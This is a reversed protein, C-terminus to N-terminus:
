QRKELSNQLYGFSSISAPLATTLWLARLPDAAAVRPDVPRLGFEAVLEEKSPELRGEVASAFLSEQICGEIQAGTMWESLDALIELDHLAPDRGFRKLFYDLMAIRDERNPVDLFFIADFRGSRILEAPMGEPSTMTAVLLVTHEREQLWALFTHLVRQSVESFQSGAISKDLDDIWLVVPSLSEVQSLAERMNREAGGLASTFIRGLDLRLLPLGLEGALAQACHSKGTGPAGGLIVGRPPKIVSSLLPDIIHRKRADVWLRLGELGIVDHQFTRTPSYWELLGRRRVEQRKMRELDNLAHERLEGHRAKSLALTRRINTLTLGAAHWAFKASWDQQGVGEQLLVEEVDSRTASLARFCQVYKSFDDPIVFLSSVLVIKKGRKRTRRSVNVLDELLRRLDVKAFAPSASPRDAADDYGRVWSNPDWPDSPRVARYVERFPVDSVSSDTGRAGGSLQWDDLFADYDRLVLFTPEDSQSIWDAVGRPDMLYAGPVDSDASTQLGSTLSWVRFRYQHRDAIRSLRELTEQEDETAVFFLTERSVLARELDPDFGGITESGRCAKRFEAIFSAITLFRDKPLKELAKALFKGLSRSVESRVQSAAAAETLRLAEDWDGYQRFGEEYPHKGTLLEFTIVALAWIDAAADLRELALSGQEPPRYAQNGADWPLRLRTTVEILGLDAFTIEEGDVYIRLPILCGHFVRHEHVAELASGIRVVLEEVEPMSRSAHVDLSIGRPAIYAVGVEAKSRVVDHVPRQPTKATATQVTLYADEIRRAIGESQFPGWVAIQEVFGSSGSGVSYITRVPTIELVTGLAYRGLTRHAPAPTPPPAPLPVEEPRGYLIFCAAVCSGEADRTHSPPLPNDDRIEMGPFALSLRARRLAEGVSLGDLFGDYFRYALDVCLDGSPIRAITNIYHRVGRNLLTMAFLDAEFDGFPLEALRQTPCANAFVLSPWRILGSAQIWGPSFIRNRLRWGGESSDSRSVGHGSFHLVDIDRLADMFSEIDPNVLWGALELRPDRVVLQRLREAETQTSELPPTPDFVILVRLPLKLAKLKQTPQGRSRRRMQVIRGVRAVESLLYDENIPTLEWPLGSVRDELEIVVDQNEADTLQDLCSDRLGLAARMLLPWDRNELSDSFRRRIADLIADDITRTTWYRQNSDDASWSHRIQRDPKTISLIQV